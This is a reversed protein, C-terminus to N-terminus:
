VSRKYILFAYKITRQIKKRSHIFPPISGSKAYRFIYRVVNQIEFKEKGNKFRKIKISMIIKLSDEVDMLNISTKKEILVYICFVEWIIFM